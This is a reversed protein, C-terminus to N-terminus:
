RKRRRARAAPPASNEAHSRKARPAKKAPRIVTARVRPKNARGLYMRLEVLKDPMPMRSPLALDPHEKANMYALETRAWHALTQFIGTSPHVCLTELKEISPVLVGQLVVALESHLRAHDSAMPYRAEFPQPVSMDIALTGQPSEYVKGSRIERRVDLLRREIKKRAANFGRIERRREEVAKILDDKEDDLKDRLIGREHLEVETLDRESDFASTTM